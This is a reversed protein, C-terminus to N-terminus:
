WLLTTKLGPLVHLVITMICRIEKYHFDEALSSSFSSTNSIEAVGKDKSIIMAIAGHGFPTNVEKGIAPFQLNSAVVLVKKCQGSNVSANALMLADTGCRMTTGLDIAMIGESIGLLDALFSAHYRDKFIPTTTAFLVADVDSDLNCAAAYALTIIDEDVYSISHKNGKGGPHLINDEITFKPLSVKYSAIYSV